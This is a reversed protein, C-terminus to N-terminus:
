LRGAVVEIIQISSDAINELSKGIVCGPEYLEKKMRIGIGPETSSVVMDGKSIPGRVCTPVRGTLAVPLMLVDRDASDNMLYGPETSIVGAIRPDHDINTVTIEANGGFVVVTGPDYESDSLYREALDAYQASSALGWVNSFRNTTNGLTYTANASPLINGTITLNGGIATNGTINATGAINAGTSTVLIVNATGTASVTVNGNAVIRVNSNGNQLTGANINGSVNATTISATTITATTIIANTTTTDAFTNAQSSVDFWLPTTGDSVRLYLIDTATDYWYDGLTSGSPAATSATYAYAYRLQAGQYLNGTYVVNAGALVNGTINATGSVNAGTSTVTLINGGVSINVNGSTNVTVNSTGNQLLGSNITTINATTIIATATGINGVNANGTGTNLTGSINAGTGTVTLIAANGASGVTINGSSTVVVNSTGNNLNVANGALAVNLNAVQTTSTVVFPATGTAINSILQPSTVNASALVQATGLNGVNANGSINMTGTVSLTHTPAINAIGVNGNAAVTMRVSGNAAVTVDSNAAVKVNSNGNVIQTTDVSFATGNAFKYNDTYIATAVLNGVNANGTAADINASGVILGNHVIFNKNAM